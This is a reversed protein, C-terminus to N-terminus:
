VNFIEVCSNSYMRRWDVGNICMVTKLNVGDTELVWEKVQQPAISGSDAIIAKDFNVLFVQDIGKVRLAVSNLMTRELQRLFTDEEVSGVGDEYKDSGGLVMCRIVLKEANDESWVVFLDAQFNGAIQSAVYNMSMKRDLMKSHDPIAFFADVFERDEEIITTTPDPDYYTEVAATVARLSTYALETQVIKALVCPSQRWSNTLRPVGLTVNKSSV